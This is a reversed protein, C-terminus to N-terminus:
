VCKLLNFIGQMLLFRLILLFCFEFKVHSINYYIDAKNSDDAM